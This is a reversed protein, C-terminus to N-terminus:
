RALVSDLQGIASRLGEDMGMGLLKEMSRQDPFHSRMTMRSGEDTTEFTLVMRTTPMETQERGEEDAFGDDIEIRRDPEVTLFQWWGHAAGAIGSSSAQAAIMGAVETGHGHIDTGSSQICSHLSAPNLDSHSGEIGTDVLAVVM